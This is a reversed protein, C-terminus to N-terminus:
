RAVYTPMSPHISRCRQTSVPSHGHICTHIIIIVIITLIGRNLWFFWLVMSKAFSLSFSTEKDGLPSLLPFSSISHHIPITAERSLICFGSSFLHRKAWKVPNVQACPLAMQTHRFICKTRTGCSSTKGPTGATTYVQSQTCFQQHRQGDKLEDM